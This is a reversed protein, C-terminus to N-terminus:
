FPLRHLDPATGAVTLPYGEGMMGGSVPLRPCPSRGALWSVQGRQRGRGAPDLRLRTSLHAITCM